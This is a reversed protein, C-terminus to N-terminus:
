LSHSHPHWQSRLPNLVPNLHLDGDVVVTPDLSTFIYNKVESTPLQTKNGILIDKLKEPNHCRIVACFVKVQIKVAM